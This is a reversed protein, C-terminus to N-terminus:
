TDIRLDLCCDMLGGHFGGDVADQAFPAGQPGSAEGPVLVRREVQQGEAAVPQQAVVAGAAPIAAVHLAMGSRAAVAAPNVTAFLALVLQRERGRRGSRWAVKRVAVALVATPGPEAREVAIM